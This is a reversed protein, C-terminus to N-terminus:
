KKIEFLRSVFDEQEVKLNVLKSMFLDLLCPRSDQKQKICRCLTGEKSELCNASLSTLFPIHRSAERMRVDTNKQKQEYKELFIIPIGIFALGDMAGSKMGIIFKLQYQTQLLKYIFIQGSVNIPKFIEKFKEDHHFPNMYVVSQTASSFRGEVEKKEEEEILDGFLILTSIPLLAVKKVLNILRLSDLNREATDDKARRVFIAAKDGEKNLKYGALYAEVKEEFPPLESLPKVFQAYIKDATSKDKLAQQIVRTTVHLGCPHKPKNNLNRFAEEEGLVSTAFQTQIENAEKLYVRIRQDIVMAAVVHYVEGFSEKPVIFNWDFDSQPEHRCVLLENLQGAGLEIDPLQEEPGLLHHIYIVKGIGTSLNNLSLELLEKYMRIMGPPSLDLDPERSADDSSGDSSDDSSSEEVQEVPTSPIKYHRCKPGCPSSPPLSLTFSQCSFHSSLDVNQLRRLLKRTKIIKPDLDAIQSSIIGVLQLRVKDVVIFVPGGSNGPVVTADVTFFHPLGYKKQPTSSVVGCHFTPEEQTLPFGAFYVEEGVQLDQNFLELPQHEPKFFPDNIEFICADYFHVYELQPPGQYIAQYDKGKYRITLPEVQCPASQATFPSDGKNWDYKVLHGPVIVLNGRYLFGTGSGRATSFVQCIINGIERYIAKRDFPIIASELGSATPAVNSGSSKVHM